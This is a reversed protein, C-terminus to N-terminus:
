RIRYETEPMFTVKVTHRKRSLSLDNFHAIGDEIGMAAFRTDDILIHDVNRVSGCVTEATAAMLRKGNQMLRFHMPYLAGEGFVTFLMYEVPKNQIAYHLTFCAAIDITHMGHKLIGKYLIIPEDEGEYKVAIECRPVGFGDHLLIDATLVGGGANKMASEKIQSVLRPLLAYRNEFANDRSIIGPRHRQWVQDLEAKLWDHKELLADLAAFPRSFDREKTFYGRFIATGIECLKLSWYCRFVYAYIDALIDKSLGEAEAYFGELKEIAYALQSRLINAAFGDEECRSAVNCRWEGGFFLPLQLSLLLKACEESGVHSAYVRVRDTESQIRGNWQAGALAVHPYTALYFDDAHCWSTMMAGMPHYKMAYDTFSDSNFPSSAPHAMTCFMYRFGLADYYSFWDRKARGQWHGKPEEPVFHYNWNTFIIDRPLRHAVDMQEFIDDWMMMTKGLSTIHDYTHIVHECFLDAKTKNERKMRAACRKCIAFDFIEDMGMHVYKGPFISLVDEVYKDIFPYFDAHSTCGCTGPGQTYYRNDDSALCESLHSLSPHALFKDMHGVNEFGPIAILGQAEAYRVLEAMESLSYTTSEDLFATDETRVANELYFLISNYGNAKAFDIYSKVYETTEKQRALDLQLTILEM